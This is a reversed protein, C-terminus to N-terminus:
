WTSVAVDNSKEPLNGMLGRRYCHREIVMSLLNGIGRELLVVQVNLPNSSLDPKVTSAALIPVKIGGSPGSHHSWDLNFTLAWIQGSIEQELNVLLMDALNQLAEQFM